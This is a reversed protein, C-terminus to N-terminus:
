HIRQCVGGPHGAHGGSIGHFRRISRIIPEHKSGGKSEDFDLAFHLGSARNQLAMFTHVSRPLMFPATGTIFIIKPILM